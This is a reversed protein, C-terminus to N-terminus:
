FRQTSCALFIWVAFGLPSSANPQYIVRYCWSPGFWIRKKRGAQAAHMPSFFNGRSQTCVIRSLHDWALDCIIINGQLHIRRGKPARQPKRRPLDPAEHSIEVAYLSADSASPMADLHIILYLSNYYPLWLRLHFWDESRRTREAPAEPEEM